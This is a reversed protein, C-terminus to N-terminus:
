QSAPGRTSDRDLCQSMYELEFEIYSKVLLGRKIYLIWLHNFEINSISSGGGSIFFECNPTDEIKYALM